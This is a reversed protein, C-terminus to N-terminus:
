YQTYYFYYSEGVGVDFGNVYVYPTVPLEGMLPPSALPISRYRDEEAFVLGTSYVALAPAFTGLVLVASVVYLLPKKDSM